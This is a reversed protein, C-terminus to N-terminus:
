HLLSVSALFTRSLVQGNPHLVSHAYFIGWIYRILVTHFNSPKRQNGSNRVRNLGSKKPRRRSHPILRGLGGGGGESRLESFIFAIHTMACHFRTLLAVMPGCLNSRILPTATNIPPILNWPQHSQMTLYVYIFKLFLSHSNQFGVAHCTAAFQLQFHFDNNNM